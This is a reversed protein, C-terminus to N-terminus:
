AVSEKISKKSYLEALRLLSGDKLGSVIRSDNELL